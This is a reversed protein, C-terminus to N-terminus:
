EKDDEKCIEGDENIIWNDDDSHDFYMEDGHLSDIDIWAYGSM